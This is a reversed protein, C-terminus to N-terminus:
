LFGAFISWKEYTIALALWSIEYKWYPLIIMVAIDFESIRAETHIIIIM